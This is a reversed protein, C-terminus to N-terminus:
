LRGDDRRWRIPPESTATGSGFKSEPSRTARVSPDVRLGGAALSKTRGDIALYGVTGDVSDVYRLVWTGDVSRVMSDGLMM